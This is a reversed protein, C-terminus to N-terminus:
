KRGTKDGCDHTESRNKDHIQKSALKQVPFDVHAVYSSFLQYFQNSFRHLFLDANIRSIKWICDNVLVAVVRGFTQDDIM